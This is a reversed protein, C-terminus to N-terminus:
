WARTITLDLAYYSTTFPEDLTNRALDWVGMAEFRWASSRRNGVGGRIRQQSAYREAAEDGLSIFWEWDAVVYWAGDDTIRSRNLPWLTEFRNRLRTTHSDPKDTSYYLNRWEVRVLDRLVLRHKPQREKFIAQDQNSLLYLRFGVRPTVETSDLDNTQHTWGATLEGVLDLWEGRGYEVSPIVDITAWGPDSSPHTVLVKPEADLGFTWHNTEIWDLRVNAWLQTNQQARSKGPIALSVAAAGVVVWRWRRIM